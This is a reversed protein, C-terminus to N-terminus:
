EDCAALIVSTAPTYLGLHMSRVTGKCSRIANAIDDAQTPDYKVHDVSLYVIDNSETTRLLSILMMDSIEYCEERDEIFTALHVQTVNFDIGPDATDYRPSHFDLISPVDSYKFVPTQATSLIVNHNDHIKRDLYVYMGFEHKINNAVVTYRINVMNTDICTVAINPIDDGNGYKNLICFVRGKTTNLLEIITDDAQPMEGNEANIFLFVTDDLRITTLLNSLVEYQPSQTTLDDVRLTSWLKVNVSTSEYENLHADQLILHKVPSEDELIFIGTNYVQDNKDHQTWQDIIRTIHM